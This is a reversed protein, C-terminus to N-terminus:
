VAGRRVVACADALDWVGAVYAATVEGISHGAVCQPVVGWSSWLRFLAM